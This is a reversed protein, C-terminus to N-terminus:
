RRKKNEYIGHLDAILVIVGYQRFNKENSILNLELSNKRVPVHRIIYRLTAPLFPLLVRRNSVEYL